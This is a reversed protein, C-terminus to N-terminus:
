TDNGPKQQDNRKIDNRIMVQNRNIYATRLANVKDYLARFDRLGTNLEDLNWYNAGPIADEYPSERQSQSQSFSFLYNFILLVFSLYRYM